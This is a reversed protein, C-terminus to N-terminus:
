RTVLPYLEFFREMIKDYNNLIKEMYMKGNNAIENCKDLNNMCWEYVDVLDSGDNKIPIFHIYPKIESLIWNCHTVLEVQVM